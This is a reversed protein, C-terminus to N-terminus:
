HPYGTWLSALAGRAFGNVALGAHYAPFELFGAGDWLDGRMTRHVGRYSGHRRDGTARGDVRVSKLPGSM